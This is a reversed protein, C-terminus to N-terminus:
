RSLATEDIEDGPDRSANNCVTKWRTEENAVREGWTKNLIKRTENVHGGHNM